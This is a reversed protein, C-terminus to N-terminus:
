YIMCNKGGVAGFAFTQAHHVNIHPSHKSWCTLVKYFTKSKSGNLTTAFHGKIGQSNLYLGFNRVFYNVIYFIFAFYVESNGGTIIKYLSSMSHRAWEQMPKLHVFITQQGGWFQVSLYSHM